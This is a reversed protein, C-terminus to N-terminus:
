DEILPSIQSPAGIRLAVQLRHQIPLRGHTSKVGAQIQEQRRPIVKIRHRHRHNLIKRLHRIDRVQDQHLGLDVAVEEDVVPALVKGRGHIMARLRKQELRPILQHTLHLRAGRLVKQAMIEAQALVRSHGQRGGLAQIM